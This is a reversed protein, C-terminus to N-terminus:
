MRNRILDAILDGDASGEVVVRNNDVSRVSTVLSEMLAANENNPALLRAAAHGGEVADLYLPTKAPDAPVISLTAEMADGASRVELFFHSLDISRAFDGFDCDIGPTRVLFGYATRGDLDAPLNRAAPTSLFSATTSSRAANMRQLADASGGFVLTGEDLFVAYKEGDDEWRHVDYGGISEKEYSENLAVLSVLKQQNFRGQAVIVNVNAPDEDIRGFLSIRDLDSFADFDTLTQIVAAQSRLRQEGLEALLTDVVPTDLAQRVNISILFESDAPALRLPNDIAAAPAALAALAALTLLRVAKM